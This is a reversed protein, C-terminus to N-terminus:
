PLFDEHANTLVSLVSPLLALKVMWATSRSCRGKRSVRLRGRLGGVRCFRDDVGCAATASLRGAGVWWGTYFAREEKRSSPTSLEM